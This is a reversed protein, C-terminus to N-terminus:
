TPCSINPNVIAVILLKNMHHHQSSPCQIYNNILSINNLTDIFIHMDLQISQTTKIAILIAKLIARLISQYSTTKKINPEQQSHLGNIRHHQRQNPSQHKHHPFSPHKMTYENNHTFNSLHIHNYEFPAIIITRTIKNAHYLSTVHNLNNLNPCSHLYSFEEYLFPPSAYGELFQQCWPGCLQGMEFLGKRHDCKM